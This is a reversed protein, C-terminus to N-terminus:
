DIRQSPSIREGCPLFLLSTNRGNGGLEAGHNTELKYLAVSSLAVYERVLLGTVVEAKKKTEVVLWTSINGLRKLRFGEVRNPLRFGDGM